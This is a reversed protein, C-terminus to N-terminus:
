VETYSYWTRSLEQPDDLSRNTLIPALLRLHRYSLEELASMIGVGREKMRQLDRDSWALGVCDARGAGHDIGERVV